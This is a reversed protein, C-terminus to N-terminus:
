LRVGGSVTRCNISGGADVGGRVDGCNVSGGADVNGGINGASVSGGAEVNGQVNGVISVSSDTTLSSLDSTVEIRITTDKLETLTKGGVVVRGNTVIINGESEFTQGNITVRNM